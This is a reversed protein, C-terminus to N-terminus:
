RGVELLGSEARRALEELIRSVLRSKTMGSARKWLFRGNPRPIQMQHACADIMAGLNHQLYGSDILPRVRAVVDADVDISEYTGAANRWWVRAKRPATSSAGIVADWDVADAVADAMVCEDAQM